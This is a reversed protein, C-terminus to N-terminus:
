PERPLRQLARVGLVGLLVLLVALSADVIGATTLRPASGTTLRWRLLSPAAPLMMAHTIEPASRVRAVTPFSEIVAHGPARLEAAFFDDGSSAPAGEPLFLPVRVDSREGAREAAGPLRYHLEIDAAGSRDVHLGRGDRLQVDLATGDRVVRIDAPELGFFPILAFRTTDPGGAAFRFTLHVLAAGTTELEVRARVQEVGGAPQAAGAAPLLGAAAGILIVRRLGM